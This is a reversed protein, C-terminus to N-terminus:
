GNFLVNLMSEQELQHGVVFPPVNLSVGAPLINSVLFGKDALILNSEVIKKDSTNGGYLKSIFTITVNPSVGVLGKLTNRHKYSSYTARQKDLQSSVSTYVETCDLVIRCNTFSAFSSPMCTENKASSPFRQCLIKEYLVYHLAYLWTIFINTITITCGFLANFLGINPLGTYISVLKDNNEIQEITFRLQFNQLKIELKKIDERLFYNEAQLSSSSQSSTSRTSGEDVDISTSPVPNDIDKKTRKRDEVIPFHMLKSKNREYITPLNEKKGDKFHCSCIVTFKTPTRDGRKKRLGIDQPFKFM